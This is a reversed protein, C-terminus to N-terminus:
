DDDRATIQGENVGETSEKIFLIKVTAFMLQLDTILNMNNIYLLDFLLKDVPDTNYKGYVQAYGTIGAKEQLRLRFAPLVKEYEKAIEPREPRPGVITMDGKLVNILQPLEDIRCARIFRGVKTIRSDGEEALRAIGDKEADVRMSRFKIIFFEKRGKTLRIQRYFVPGGDEAKIAAATILMIPSTLVLAISCIVIDLFRKVVQYEPDSGCRIALLPVSFSQVHETGAMIIDGVHPIFYGQIHKETCYKAIGNRLTAPVGTVFVADCGHMFAIIEDISIGPKARLEKSMDFNRTYKSLEKLRRKDAEDRYIVVTQKPPNLYFYLIDAAKAWFINFLWMVPMLFIFPLPNKWKNWVMLASCFVSATSLLCTISQSFAIDSPESYGVLYCNYTRSFFYSVGVYMGYVYYNYRPDYHINYIKVFYFWTAIFLMSSVVFHLYKFMRMKHDGINKKYRRMKKKNNAFRKM